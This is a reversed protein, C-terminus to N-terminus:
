CNNGEEAGTKSLLDLDELLGVVGFGEDGADDLGNGFPSFTSGEDNGTIATVEVRLNYLLDRLNTRGVTDLLQEHALITEETSRRGTVQDTHPLSSTTNQQRGTM